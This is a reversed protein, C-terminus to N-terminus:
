LKIPTVKKGELGAEAIADQIGQKIEVDTPSPNTDGAVIGSIQNCQGVWGNEDKQIAFTLLGLPRIQELVRERESEPVESNFLLGYKQEM